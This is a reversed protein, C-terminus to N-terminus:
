RMVNKRISLKVLAMACICSIPIDKPDHHQNYSVLKIHGELESRNVYKVVLFEDGEIEFSVLYMEGYIINSFDHIEKYAIIDGSKLLPYMSDGTVCVAGDCKPMDPISIVGLINQNKNALLTRLNAAASIDYLLVDQDELKMETTKPQHLVQLQADKLMEGQGTLLWNIDLDSCTTAIKELFDASFGSKKAISGRSLGASEEFATQGMGKLKLYEVFRKKANSTGTPDERLMTGQGTLLWNIDLEPFKSIIMELVDSGISTDKKAATTLYGPKKGIEVEFVNRGGYGKNKLYEHFEVLRQAVSM